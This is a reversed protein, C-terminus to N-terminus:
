VDSQCLSHSCTDPPPWALSSRELEALPNMARIGLVYKRAARCAWDDHSDESGEEHGFEKAKDVDCFGGGCLDELLADSSVCSRMVKERLVELPRAWGGEKVVGLQCLYIRELRNGIREFFNVLEEETFAAYHVCLRKINHWSATALVSGVPNLPEPNDVPGIVRGRCPLTLAGFDLDVDELCPGSLLASLYNNLYAQNQALIPHLQVLRGDGAKVLLTRISRVAARLGEWNTAGTFLDFPCMKDSTAQRLSSQSQSSASSNGQQM